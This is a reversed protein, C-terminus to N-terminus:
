GPIPRCNTLRLTLSLHHKRRNKPLESPDQAPRSPNAFADETASAIPDIIKLARRRKGIISAYGVKSAIGGQSRGAM